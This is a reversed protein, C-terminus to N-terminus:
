EQLRGESPHRSTRVATQVLRHEGTDKQPTVDKFAYFIRPNFDTGVRKAESQIEEDFFRKIDADIPEKGIFRSNWHAPPNNKLADQLSAFLEAVIEETRQQIVEQIAVKYAEIKAKLVKLENEFAEVNKRLIIM